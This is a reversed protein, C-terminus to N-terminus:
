YGFIYTRFAKSESILMPFRITYDSIPGKIKLRAIIGDDDLIKYQACADNVIAFKQFAPSRPDDNSISIMIGIGAMFVNDMIHHPLIFLARDVPSSSSFYLYTYDGDPPSILKCGYTYEGLRGIGDVYSHGVIEGLKVSFRQLRETVANVYYFGYDQCRYKRLRIKHQESADHTYGARNDLFGCLILVDTDSCGFSQILTLINLFSTRSRGSEINQITRYGIGTLDAAAEQTLGKNTRIESIYEGAKKIQKLPDM